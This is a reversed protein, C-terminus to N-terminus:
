HRNGSRRQQRITESDAIVERYIQEVSAMAQEPSYRNDFLARNALRIPQLITPEALLNRVAHHLSEYNGTQFKRGNEPDNVIEDLAGIASVILPTGTAFAELATNPFGEYWESPIILFAARQMIELVETRTRRGLFEISSNTQSATHELTSRMAGEGVIKLPFNIGQWARILTQVGKEATLRGVFLAYGGEGGGIDPPNLFANSRVVIKNAPLGGRILRQRANATLCIYRDVANAYTGRLRNMNTMMMVATTAMRSNRYCGHKIAPLMANGICDECPKGNRMLLGGPCILRYNHLTQVVPVLNDQCAAYGSASVLPFTNHFHAIEPQHMRILKDIDRYTTRSWFLSAAAAVRDVASSSIDDNHRTYCVVEHGAQQLLQRENDFAIDEGSPSDSQYHNHILLIRM